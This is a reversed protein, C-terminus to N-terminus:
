NESSDAFFRGTIGLVLSGTEVVPAAFLITVGV